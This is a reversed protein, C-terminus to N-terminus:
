EERWNNIVKAGSLGERPDVGVKESGYWPSWGKQVAQDLAFQVQKTIGEPTNDYQLTRGTLREYDNGLGGGTFLQFPGWSAEFGNFSGKGERKVRSQYTGKGESAWVKLAVDPDMNRLKAERVILERIDFDPLEQFYDIEVDRPEGGKSIDEPSIDWVSVPNGAEDTLARSTVPEDEPRMPPELPKDSTEGRIAAIWEAMDREPNYQPGEEQQRGRQSRQLGSVASSMGEVTEDAMRAGLGIFRKTKESARSTPDGGGGILDALSSLKQYARDM